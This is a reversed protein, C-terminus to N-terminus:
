KQTVRLSPTFCVLAMNKVKLQSYRLGATRLRPHKLGFPYALLQLPYASKFINLAGMLLMMARGFPNHAIKFYRPFMPFLPFIVKQGYINSLFIIHSYVSLRIFNFNNM